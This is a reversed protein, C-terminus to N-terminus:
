WRARRLAPTTARMSPAARLSRFRWRRSFRGASPASNSTSDAAEADAIERRTTRQRYSTGWPHYSGTAPLRSIGGAADFARSRRSAQSGAGGSLRRTAGADYRISPLNVDFTLVRDVRFGLDVQQLRQFSALLVAPASWCHSRLRSNRPPWAAASGGKGGHAQPPARNSVCRM